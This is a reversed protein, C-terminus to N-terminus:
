RCLPADPHPCLYDLPIARALCSSVSVGRSGTIEPWVRVRLLFLIVEPDPGAPDWALTFCAATIHTQADLPPPHLRVHMPCGRPAGALPGLDASPLRSGCPNTAKGDGFPCGTPGHVSVARDMSWDERGHAFSIAPGGSAEIAVYGALVWVDALSIGLGAAHEAHVRELVAKAKAFGANEPDNAEAAFRMTGGNSGGTETRSDYTGSLHWAFRIFLPALSGDDHTRDHMADEIAARLGGLDKAQQPQQGAGAGRAPAGAAPAAAAPAAPAPLATAAAASASSTGGDTFVDGDVREGGALQARSKKGVSRRFM